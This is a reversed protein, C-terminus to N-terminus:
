IQGYLLGSIYSYAKMFNLDNLKVIMNILQSQEESYLTMGKVNNSALYDISVGFYRSISKLKSLTPELQGALYRNYTAIPINLEKAVDEIKKGSAKQLEKLKNM